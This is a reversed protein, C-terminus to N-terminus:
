RRQYMSIIDNRVQDYSKGHSKALYKILERYKDDSIRGAKAVQSIGVLCPEYPFIDFEKFVDMKFKKFTKAFMQAYEEDTFGVQFDRLDKYLARLVDVSDKEFEEKWIPYWDKDFILSSIVKNLADRSEKPFRRISQIFERNDDLWPRQEIYFVIQLFLKLNNTSATFHLGEHLSKSSIGELRLLQPLVRYSLDLEGQEPVDTVFLYFIKDLKGGHPYNDNAPLKLRAELLYHFAEESVYVANLMAEELQAVSMRMPLFTRLTRLQKEDDRRIVDVLQQVIDDAHKSDDQETKLNGFHFGQFQGALGQTFSPATRRDTTEASPSPKDVHSCTVAGALFASILISFRM